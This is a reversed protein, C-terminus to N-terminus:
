TSSANKLLFAELPRFRKVYFETVGALDGLVYPELERTTQNIYTITSKGKEGETEKILLGSCLHEKRNYEPFPPLTTLKVSRYAITFHDRTDCPIRRSVLLVVDDPKTANRMNNELVMHLIEDDDDVVEAVEVKILLPDWEKRGNENRLLAFVEGPPVAVCLTAKVCLYSDSECKFLTVGSSSRVQEWKTLEYLKVLAEVNNYNLLQSINHNWPIAIVPGVSKRIQERELRLRKRAMAERARRQAEETDLRLPALIKPAGTKDPAVFILFASNVHRVEGGISYAEVRCGVEMHVDYTNNVMTKIIVRDGVKIPGRFKVEDVARLQPHSRCLRTAAITCAAVMWAMVQGGFATQHHNAHPPLVLEVSELTTKFPSIKEDTSKVNEPLSTWQQSETEGNQKLALEKLNTPYQIRLRRRENALAYQLKEEATFPVVPTLRQKQNNKDLAVFTFFANCVEQVKGSLLNEVKVSVGVEMSTNFARNVRATLNVVQGVYIQQAFYLEDMSATVCSARAHKEAALCAVADMWKLLQGGSLCNEQRENTHTPLVLQNMEVESANKYDM